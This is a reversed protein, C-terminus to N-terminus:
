KLWINWHVLLLLLIFGFDILEVNKRFEYNKEGTKILNTFKPYISIVIDIM